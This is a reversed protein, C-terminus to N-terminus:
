LDSYSYTCLPGKGGAWPLIEPPIQCRGVSVWQQYIVAFSWEAIRPIAPILCVWSNRVPMHVAFTLLPYLSTTMWTDRRSTTWLPTRTSRASCCWTTWEATNSMTARGTTDTTGGAGRFCFLSLTCNNTWESFCLSIFSDLTQCWSAVICWNSSKLVSLVQPPTTKDFQQALWVIQFGLSFHDTDLFFEFRTCKRVTFM